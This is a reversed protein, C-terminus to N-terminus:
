DCWQFHLGGIRPISDLGLNKCALAILEDENISLPDIDQTKLHNYVWDAIQLSQNINAIEVDFIRAM